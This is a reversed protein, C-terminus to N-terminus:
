EKGHIEVILSMFKGNKALIEYFDQWVFEYDNKIYLNPRTKLLKEPITCNALNWNYEGGRKIGPNMRFAYGLTNEGCNGNWYYKDNAICIFVGSHAFGSDILKEIRSIDKWCDYSDVDHAAQSKLIDKIPIGTDEYLDDSEIKHTKYKLEIPYKKGDVVVLIDIYITRWQADYVRVPFERYIKVDPCDQFVQALEWTFAAQFDAESVFFRHKQKLNMFASVISETINM